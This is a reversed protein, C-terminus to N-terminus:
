SILSRKNFKKPNSNKIEDHKVESNDFDLWNM